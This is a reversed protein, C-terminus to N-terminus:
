SLGCATTLPTTPACAPGSAVVQYSMTSGVTPTSDNYTLTTSNSGSVCTLGSVSVTGACGIQTFPGSSSTASQILCGTADTAAPWTITVTRTATQGFAAAVVSLLLPILKKFAM